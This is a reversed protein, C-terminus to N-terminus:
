TGARGRACAVCMAELRAACRVHAAQAAETPSGSVGALLFDAQEGGALLEDQSGARAADLTWPWTREAPPSAASPSHPSPLAKFFASLLAAVLWWDATLDVQFQLQGGRVGLGQARAHARGAQHALRPARPPPPRPRRGRNEGKELACLNLRSRDRRFGHAHFPEETARARHTSRAPLGSGRRTKRSIQVHAPEPTATGGSADSSQSGSAGSRAPTVGAAEESM